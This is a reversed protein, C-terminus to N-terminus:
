DITTPRRLSYGPFIGRAAAWRLGHPRMERECRPLPNRWTVAGSHCRPTTRQARHRGPRGCCHCGDRGSAYEMRGTAAVVGPRGAVRETSLEFQPQGRSPHDLLLLADRVLNWAALRANDSSRDETAHLVIDLHLDGAMLAEGHSERLLNAQCHRTPAFHVHSLADICKRNREEVQAEDESRLGAEVHALQFGLTAAAIAGAYAPDSDGIVMVLDPRPEDALAKKLRVLAVSLRKLRSSERVQLKYDPEPIRFEDFFHSSLCEDWHQGTHVFRLDHEAQLRRWLVGLKIFQPRVGVVVAIRM